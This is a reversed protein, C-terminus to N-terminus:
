IPYSAPGPQLILIKDKLIKETSTIRPSKLFRGRNKLMTKWDYSTEYAQPSPLFSKNKVVTEIFSPVKFNTIKTTRVKSTVLDTSPLSYNAIGFSQDGKTKRFNSRVVDQVSIPNRDIFDISNNM